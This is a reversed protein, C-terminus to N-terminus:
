SSSVTGEPIRSYPAVSREKPRFPSEKANKIEIEVSAPETEKAFPYINM